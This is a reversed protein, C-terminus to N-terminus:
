ERVRVNIDSLVGTGVHIELDQLVRHAHLRMETAWAPHDVIVMLTKERIAVPECHACILEGVVKPWWQQVIALVGVPRLGHRSLYSDVSAGIGHTPHEGAFFDDRNSQM